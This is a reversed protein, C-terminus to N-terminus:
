ERMFTTIIIVNPLYLLNTARFSRCHSSADRSLDVSIRWGYGIMYMKLQNGGAACLYRGSSHTKAKQAHLDSVENPCLESIASPFGRDSWPPLLKPILLYIPTISSKMHQSTIKGSCFKKCRVLLNIPLM